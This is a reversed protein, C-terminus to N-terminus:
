NVILPVYQIILFFLIYVGNYRLFYYLKGRRVKLSDLVRFGDLPYIPLLNFLFFALSLYFIRSLASKVIVSFYGINPMYLIALIAIPYILFALLYNALVGAVSVWFCGKKYNRFNNPNVPVPKAWGFGAFVFCALGVLDFHALPNLTYRRYM